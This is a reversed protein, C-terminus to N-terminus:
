QDPRPPTTSPRYNERKAVLYALGLGLGVAVVLILIVAGM